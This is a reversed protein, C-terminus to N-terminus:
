HSSTWSPARGGPIGVSLRRGAVCHKCWSRFPIHSVVHKEREMQSPSRPSASPKTRAEGGSRFEEGHEKRDADEAADRSKADDWEDEVVEEVTGLKEWSAVPKRPKALVVRPNKDELRVKNGAALM